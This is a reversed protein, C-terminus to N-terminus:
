KAAEELLVDAMMGVRLKDSPGSRELVEGPSLERRDLFTLHAVHAATGHHLRAREGSWAFLRRLEEPPVTEPAGGMVLIRTQHIGGGRLRVAEEVSSVALWNVGESVLVRSIEVAGHGYADAKVVGAVEVGPGVASRVNRYNRAIRERSVLAYCRYPASVVKM